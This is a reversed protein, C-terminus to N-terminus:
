HSSPLRCPCLCGPAVGGHPCCGLSHGGGGGNEAEGRVGNRHWRVKHRVFTDFEMLSYGLSGDGYIVWVQWTVGPPTVFAVRPVAAGWAAGWGGGGVGYRQKPGACNPVWLSGVASEWRASPAQPCLLM